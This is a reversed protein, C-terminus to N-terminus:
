LGLAALGRYHQDPTTAAHAHRFAARVARATFAEPRTTRVRWTAREGPLMTVLNADSWAQPDIEDAALTLDRVVSGATVTVIAESSSSEVEVAYEVAANPLDKEVGGLLVSRSGETTAVLLEGTALRSLTEPLPAAVSEGAPVLVSLESSALAENGAWRSVTIRALWAEATANCAFLAPVGGDLRLTVLHDAYAARIAYAVPKWVGQSDVASWSLAPWCDNLQWVITGRCYPALARFREIGYRVARAQNLQALWYWEEFDTPVGFHADLVDNIRETGGVAKQRQVTGASFPAPHEDHVVADFTSRGPPGQCGFEAVFRPAIDDYGRYDGALWCHVVGASPDNPERWRGGSSPSGVLYHRWPDLDAIVEPLLTMYYREGWAAGALQAEWDHLFWFWLNENNANWLALSPHHMLRTVNDRVEAAIESPFPEDEPYAACAFLFDQWVLMGAEDCQRYFESSEFVGGGWVRILNAGMALADTIGRRYDGPTVRAISTDDPIWNFGRVFLDVGNVSIGFSEGGEEDPAEEVLVTRFGIRQTIEDLLRDDTRLQVTLDYLRQRGLGAPWWLEPSPVEIGFRVRRTGAPVHRRHTRGGIIAELVLDHTGGDHDVEVDLDVVGSTGIVRASPRVAALRAISWCSLEVDRWIGAGTLAPGWDWGFDCAKKRLFPVLPSFASPLGGLRDREREAAIVPSELRLTLHVDSDRASPLDVRWTRHMNRSSALAEGDVFLTAVTDVGHFVLEARDAETGVRTLTRAYEWDCRGIWSLAHENDAESPDPILRADLLATHADGPVSAPIGADLQSSLEPPVPGSIARLSWGSNIPTSSHM